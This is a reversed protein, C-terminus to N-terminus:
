GADEGGPTSPDTPEDPPEADATAGEGAAQDALLVDSLLDVAARERDATVQIEMPGAVVSYGTGFRGFGFLDQLAENRAVYPIGAEDLLSKATMWVVPDNTSFVTTVDAPDHQAVPAEPLVAVLDVDCDECRTFGERYEGGCNPCFMTSAQAVM